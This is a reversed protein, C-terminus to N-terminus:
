DHTSILGHEVGIVQMEGEKNRDHRHRFMVAFIEHFQKLNRVQRPILISFFQYLKQILSHEFQCDVTM